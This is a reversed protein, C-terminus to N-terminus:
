PTYLHQLARELISRGARMKAGRVVGDKGTILKQVIGLKWKGRNKSDEDKIIVVDGESIASKKGKHKLRHQERLSRVYETSWRKWVAEKCRILHKARRRLDQDENHHPELEPLINPQGLLLSNPTLIPLQLDDEVYSLPRNNLAVEVDLVVDELESWSLHGNGITKYLANKVLAVMREFQGGWWPARSLNFQWHIKHNALYDHFVEDKMMQRILRAAGIFTSGNDSYIKSPRGRRAIFRKLTTMFSELEM